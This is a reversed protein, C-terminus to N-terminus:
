GCSGSVCSLPPACDNAHACSQGGTREVCRREVCTMEGCCEPDGDCLGGAFGVCCATAGGFTRPLCSLGGCCETAAACERDEIGCLGPDRCSGAVCELGECCDPDVFCTGDLTMCAPGVGGDEPAPVAGDTRECSQGNAVWDPAYCTAGRENGGVTGGMCASEAHCWGCGALAVCSACSTAPASPEAPCAAAETALATRCEVSTPVCAGLDACWGCGSASVCGGCTTEAACECAGIADNCLMGDTAIRSRVCIAAGSPWSVCSARAGCWACGSASACEGCSAIANCEDGPLPCDNPHDMWSEACAGTVPASGDATAPVCRGDCLGCGSAATCQACDTIAACRAEPTAATATSPGCGGASRDIDVLYAGATVSTEVFAYTAEGYGGRGWGVGWSNLFTFRSTADDYGVLLIGHGGDHLGGSSGCPGSPADIVARGDRWGADMCIQTSAAVTRGSALVRKIRSIMDRGPTIAGYGTARLRRQGALTDSSPATGRITASGGAFPWASEDVVARSTVAELARLLSTGELCSAPHSSSGTALDSVSARVPACGEACYMADLMAGTTHVACWPCEDQDRVQLCGDLLEARLDVRSPPRSLFGFDPARLSEESVGETPAGELPQPDPPLRLPPESMLCVTRGGIISVPVCEGPPADVPDPVETSGGDPQAESSTCGAGVPLAGPALALILAALVSPARTRMTPEPPLGLM